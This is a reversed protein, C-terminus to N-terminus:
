CKHNNNNNNNMQDIYISIVQSIEKGPSKFDKEICNFCNINFSPLELLFDRNTNTSQHCQNCTIIMSTLLPEKIILKKNSINALHFKAHLNVERENILSQKCVICTIALPSNDNSNTFLKAKNKM